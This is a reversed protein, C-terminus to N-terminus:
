SGGAVVKRDHLRGIEAPMMGLIGELIEDTHEGLQPAPSPPKAGLGAFDIPSGPMPYTGAGPQYVPEFGSAAVSWRGDGTATEIFDQYPGWLVRQDDLTAAVEAIGRSGVWNEVVSALERRAEFLDGHAEIPAGRRDELAAVEGEIGLAKALRRFQGATIAVIMVRTGDSTEFDRGFAGYLYNGLRPRNRGLLAAEAVFGLHGIVANAVDALAVSLYRGEGHMLRSREAALLGIVAMNGTVVDWVPLVSNVVGDADEPGTILPLGTAANITYDVAPGGDSHGEIRIMIADSRRAELKEFSFWASRPYNTLAIGGGEGPASALSLAIDRGEESSVDLAISRKGQNLGAWYLSVGEDSIPWRDYDIGGGIPDFRIVDAGMGALLTGGLPAAVFASGEVIRLGALIGTDTTGM